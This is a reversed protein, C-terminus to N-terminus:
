LKDEYIKVKLEMKWEELKSDYTEKQKEQLLSAKIQDKVQDLPTIEEGESFKSDKNENYYTLVDDDTITVDKVMYNHMLNTIIQTRISEKLADETMGSKQLVSEFQGKQSYRAKIQRMQQDIQKNLDDDSSKINLETAKMLMIKGTVMEDLRKQKIQILQEKVKNNTAYDDGLQKKLQDDYKSFEKDFDDKTIKENGVTAVVTKQIAEPIKRGMNCVFAFVAITSIAIVIIIKKLRKM